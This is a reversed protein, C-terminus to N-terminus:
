LTELVKQKIGTAIDSTLDIGLMVGTSRVQKVVHLNELKSRLISLSTRGREARMKLLNKKDIIDLAELAVAACVPQGSWTYDHQWVDLVM